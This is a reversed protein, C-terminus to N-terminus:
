GINIRRLFYDTWTIETGIVEAKNHSYFVFTNLLHSDNM